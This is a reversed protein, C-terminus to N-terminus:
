GPSSGDDRDDRRGAIALRAEKDLPRGFVGTRNRPQRGAVAVAVRDDEERIEHRRDVAEDREIRSEDAQDRRAGHRVSGDDTSQQGRHGSGGLADPDRDVVTM